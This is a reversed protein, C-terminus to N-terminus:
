FWFSMHCKTDWMKKVEVKWFVRPWKTSSKIYIFSILSALCLCCRHLLLLIKLFIRFIDFFLKMKAEQSQYVKEYVNLAVLPTLSINCWWNWCLNYIIPYYLDSSAHLKSSSLIVNNSECYQIEALLVDSHLWSSFHINWISCCMKSSLFNWKLRIRQLLIRKM